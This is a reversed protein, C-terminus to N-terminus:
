LSALYYDIRWSLGAPKRQEVNLGLDKRLDDAEALAPHRV